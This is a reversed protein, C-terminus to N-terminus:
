HFKLFTFSFFLIKRKTKLCGLFMKIFIIGFHSKDKSISGGTILNPSTQGFIIKFISFTPAQFSNQFIECLYKVLVLIDTDDMMILCHGGIGRGYYDYDSLVSQYLQFAETLKVETECALPWISGLRWDVLLAPHSSGYIDAQYWVQWPQQHFRCVYRWKM